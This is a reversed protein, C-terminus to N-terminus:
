CSLKRMCKVLSEGPCVKVPLKHQEKDKVIINQLQNEDLLFFFFDNCACSVIVFYVYKSFYVYIVHHSM